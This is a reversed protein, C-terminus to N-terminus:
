VFLSIIQPVHDVFRLRRWGFSLSRTTNKVDTSHKLDELHPASLKFINTLSILAFIIVYSTVSSFNFAEMVHTKSM